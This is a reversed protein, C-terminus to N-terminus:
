EAARTANAESVLAILMWAAHPMWQEIWRWEDWCPVGGGTMWQFGSGDVESGTIGNAIGGVRTGHYPNKDGCYAGPNNKGFGNVFSIDLPNSGLIWDLQARALRSSRADTERCDSARTAAQGQYVAAALSALRASEGQWWYGSENDRPIFFSTKVKGGTSVHQRAYGYPNAVETTVRSLYTLHTAIASLAADRKAADVESAAYRVLAVVPLGADTAHWFPRTGADAIFYGAPSLRGILAAARERADELFALDGDSRFLETAALLAAYDDIINERGDDCYSANMTVLHAYALKAVELYKSAAFAGAKGWRAVRALAAIAMGGGERFAARYNTGKTGMGNEISCISRRAPDGSWVDFVNTYFYGESSQVRVLYDAAYLAEEELAKALNLETLLAGGEDKAYALAWALLPTQQPTLFNSYALHTLYKSLDGAADYYGGQVDVRAESGEIAMNADAAVVAPDDARSDEFYLLLATLLKKGLLQPGIGFPESKTGNVVIRYVGPTRLASFDAVAHVDTRGFADFAGGKLKGTLVVADDDDRVVQFTALAANSTIVARKAQVTEFGLQNLHVQHTITADKETDIQTGDPVVPAAPPEPCEGVPLPGADQESPDAPEGADPGETSPGDPDEGGCTGGGCREAGEAGGCALSCSGLIVAFALRLISEM